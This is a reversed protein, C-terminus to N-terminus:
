MRRRTVGGSRRAERIFALGAYGGLGVFWPGLLLTFWAPYPRSVVFALVTLGLFAVLGTVTLWRPPDSFDEVLRLLLYPIALILTLEAAVLLHSGTLGLAATLRSAVVFTAVSGFLLAIDINARCPRRAAQLGTVVFVAVFLGHTLWNVLENATM